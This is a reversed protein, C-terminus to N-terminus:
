RISKRLDPETLTMIQSLLFINGRKLANVTRSSLGLKEVVVDQM